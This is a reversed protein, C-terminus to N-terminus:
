GIKEELRIKINLSEIYKIIFPWIEVPVIWEFENDIKNVPWAYTELKQRVEKPLKIYISFDVYQAYIKANAVIHNNALARFLIAIKRNVQLEKGLDGIRHYKCIDGKNKILFYEYDYKNIVRRALVIGKIAIPIVNGWCEYINKVSKYPDFFELRGIDSIKEWWLDRVWSDFWEEANLLSDDFEEITTKGKEILAIGAYYADRKLLEGYIRFIDPTLNKERKPSLIINSEFGMTKIEDFALLRDRLIGIAEQNNELNYFYSEQEKYRKIFEDLIPRCKLLVHKKSVGAPIGRSSDLTSTKIWCSLGSYLTRSVWQDYAENKYNYIGLDNAMKEILTDM